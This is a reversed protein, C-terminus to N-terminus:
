VDFNVAEPNTQDKKPIILDELAMLYYCCTSLEQKNFSFIKNWDIQGKDAAAPTLIKERLHVKIDINIPLIDLLTLIERRCEEKSTRLLDLIM